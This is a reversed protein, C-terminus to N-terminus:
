RISVNDPVGIILITKVPKAFIKYTIKILNQLEDGYIEGVADFFYSCLNNASMKEIKIHMNEIASICLFLTVIVGFLFSLFLKIKM